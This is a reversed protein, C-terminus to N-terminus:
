LLLSSIVNLNVNQMSHFERLGLSACSLYIDRERGSGNMLQINKKNYFEIIIKNLDSLTDKSETFVVLSYSMNYIDSEDIENYVCYRKNLEKKYMERDAENYRQFEVFFQYYGDNDTFLRTLEATDDSYNKGVFVIGHRNSVASCSFFGNGSSTVDTYIKKVGNREFLYDTDMEKFEGASNMHVYTLVTELNCATISINFVSSINKALLEEFEAIAEKAEYYTAYEFYVTLFMYASLKGDKNKLCMTFRFRNTFNNCLANVLEAKKNNLIAPRFIYVKKYSNNGSFFVNDKYQVAQVGLEMATKSPLRNLSNNITKVEPTERKKM